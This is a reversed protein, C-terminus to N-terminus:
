AVRRLLTGRSRSGRRLSLTVQNGAENFRVDDMFCFMRQLGRGQPRTPEGDEIVLPTCVVYDFGPGEDRVVFKAETCSLYASIHILRLMFPVSRQRELIFETQDKALLQDRSRLLDDKSLELNGHYLANLIAEQLAIAAYKESKGRCVGLKAAKRCLYHSVPRVLALENRMSFHLELRDQQTEWRNSLSEVAVHSHCLSNCVSLPRNMTAVWLIASAQPAVSVRLV